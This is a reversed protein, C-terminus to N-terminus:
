DLATNSRPNAAKTFFLAVVIQPRLTARAFLPSNAIRENFV